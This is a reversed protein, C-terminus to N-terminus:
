SKGFSLYYILKEMRKKLEPIITEEGVEKGTYEIEFEYSYNRRGKITSLIDSIDYRYNGIEYSTREIERFTEFETPVQEDNLLNIENSISIRMGHNQVREDINTLKIKKICDVLIGDNDYKCRIKSTTNEINKSKNTYTERIPNLPPINNEFIYLLRNYQEENIHNKPHKFFYRAEYELNPFCNLIANETITQFGTDPLVNSIEKAARLRTENNDDM